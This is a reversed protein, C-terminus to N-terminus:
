CAPLKKDIVINKIQKTKITKALQWFERMELISLDTKIHSNLQKFIKLYTMFDGLPNMELVKKKLLDIIQQQRAMRDFDGNPSTYRSRIYRLATEGDMYRWGAQISFTQYGREATPFYPDDIDKPVYVNLGGVTDIIEKVVVLDVLLYRDPHFGTIEGIKSKLNEIGTLTYLSNVKTYSGKPLKTLFDRPVSVLIAKKTKPKFHALLITDTLSQGNYEQGKTGLALISVGNQSLLESTGNFINTVSAFINEKTKQTVVKVSPSKETNNKPSTITITRSYGLSYIFFIRGFYNFLDGFFVM